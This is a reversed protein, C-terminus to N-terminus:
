VFYGKYKIGLDLTIIDGNKLIQQDSPVGHVM